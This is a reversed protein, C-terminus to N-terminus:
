AGRGTADTAALAPTHWLDGPMTPLQSPLSTWDTAATETATETAPVYLTAQLAAAPTRRAQPPAVDRAAPRPAIDAPAGRSM